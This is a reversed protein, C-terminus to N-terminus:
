MKGWQIGSPEIWEFLKANCLHCGNIGEDSDEFLIRNTSKKKLSPM